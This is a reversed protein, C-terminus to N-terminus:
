GNVKNRGAALWPLPNIPQGNRRLEMYLAPGARKLSDMAGVPEGALVNEGVQKDIRGLGALLLHYKAQYEIILLQGLGRFPGAFVILGDRPAIVTSGPRTQISVGRTNGGNRLRHGFRHNIRGRVPLGDAKLVPVDPIHQPTLKAVEADKRPKQKALAPRTLGTNLPKRAKKTALRAVLERLNRAEQGLKTARDQVKSLARRTNKALIKKQGELEALAAQQQRLASDEEMIKNRAAAVADALEALAALDDRLANGMTMVSPVTNRLLLASRVTDVPEMPLAILAVPPHMSIRQLAALMAGLQQRRATLSQTTRLQRRELVRQRDELDLLLSEHEHIRAAVSISRRRLDAINNEAKAATDRLAKEKERADKLSQEVTAL